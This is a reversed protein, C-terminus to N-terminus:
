RRNRKIILEVMDPNINEPLPKPKGLLYGQVYDCGIGILYELEEVLEVGEALTKMGKSKAYKIINLVMQQRDVDSHVNSILSMDIKVYDPQIELLMVEGNYGTGYDDLAIGAKWRKIVEKKYENISKVNKETETLEVVVNVLYKSYMNEFNLIFDPPLVQDAISNIFIKKDGFLNINEVYKEISKKFTLIEIQNLKHHIKAVNLIEDPNKFSQSLSRMLAEYGIISGDLLSVIPQFYYDVLEKEILINLEEKNKLIYANKSYSERDFNKFEGKLQNKTEYLAYDACSILGNYDTADNPYYSIGASIRVKINTGNPAVISSNSFEAKLKELEIEILEKSDYGYMLIYFEDGSRRGYLKQPDDKCCRSIISATEKIYIDGYDHGYTDNVFKLNDLDMMIFVARKIISKDRFILELNDMFARRNYINTLSDYNREYILKEKEEYEKSVDEILGTLIRKDETDILKMNIWHDENNYDKYKYTIENVYSSIVYEDLSKLLDEFDLITYKKKDDIKLVKSIDGSFYVNDKTLEYEFAVIQLNVMSVIKRFKAEVKIVDSSLEEIADTLDDIERINVKKLKIIGSSKTKEVESTLDTIPKSFGVSFLSIVIIGLVFSAVISIHVISELKSSADKIFSIDVISTIYWSENAYPGYSNYLKIEEVLVYVNNKNSKTSYKQIEGPLINVTELMSRLEFSNVGAIISKESEIKSSGSYGLIYYGNDKSDLENYPLLTKIYSTSVDIGIVGYVDGLSNTLPLTYTIVEISENNLHYPSSWWGCDKSSLRSNNMKTEIPKSFFLKQQESFSSYEFNLKCYSTGLINYKNQYNYPAVELVFDSYDNNSIRPNIDRFYLGYKDNNSLYDGFAVFVGSVTTSNLTTVLDDTIENFIDTSLSVDGNKLDSYNKTNKLLNIEVKEQITTYINTSYMWRNVMEEELYSARNITKEEYLDLAAEDLKRYAGGINIASIFFVTQLILVILMVFILNVFITRRKRRGIKKM